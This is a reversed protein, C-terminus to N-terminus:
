PPDGPTGADGETSTRNREAARYAPGFATPTIRVPIPSSPARPIASIFCAPAAVTACSSAVHTTKPIGFSAILNPPTSRTKGKCDIGLAIRVQARHLIVFSWPFLGNVPSPCSAPVCAAGIHRAKRPM